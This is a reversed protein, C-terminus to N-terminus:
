KAKAKSPCGEWEVRHVLIQRHTGRATFISTRLSYLSYPVAPGYKSDRKGHSEYVNAGYVGGWDGRFVKRWGVSGLLTIIVRFIALVQSFHSVAASHAAIVRWNSVCDHAVSQSPPATPGNWYQQWTTQPCKM